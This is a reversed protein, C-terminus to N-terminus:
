DSSNVVIESHATDLVTNGGSVIKERQGRVLMEAAKKLEEIVSDEKHNVDIEMKINEPPKLHTLLSNAADSRVKESKANMMLKAQENIAKQYVDANLVYVPVLTQEMIKNVLKNKNYSTVYSAIDKESTGNDLFTQYRDPFTKAYSDINTAGLLKFSVYRVADIYQELRFKGEDLVSTFSIINERYSERILPDEVLDNIYDIVDKNIKGRFRKPMVKKLQEETLKNSETSGFSPVAAKIMERM